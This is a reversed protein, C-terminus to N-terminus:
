CTWDDFKSLPDAHCTECMLKWEKTPATYMGDIMKGYKLRNFEYRAADMEAVAKNIRRQLKLFRKQAQEKNM